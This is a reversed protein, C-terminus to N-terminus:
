CSRHPHLPHPDSCAWLPLPYPQFGWFGAVHPGAATGGTTWAAGGTAQTVPPDDDFGVIQHSQVLDEMTPPLGGDGLTRDLVM